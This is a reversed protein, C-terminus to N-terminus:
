QIFTLVALYNMTEGLEAASKWIRLLCTLKDSSWLKNPVFIFLFEIKSIWSLLAVFIFLKLKWEHYKLREKVEALQTEIEKGRM